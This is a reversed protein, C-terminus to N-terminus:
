SYATTYYQKCVNIANNLKFHRYSFKFWIFITFYWELIHYFPDGMTQPRIHNKYLEGLSLSLFCVVWQFGCVMPFGIYIMSEHFEYFPKNLNASFCKIFILIVRQFSLVRVRSPVQCRIINSSSLHYELFFISQASNICSNICENLRKFIRFVFALDLIWMVQITKFGSVIYVIYKNFM